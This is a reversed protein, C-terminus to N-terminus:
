FIERFSATLLADEINQFQQSIGFVFVSGEKFIFSVNLIDIGRDGMEVQTKLILERIEWNDDIKNKDAPYFHHGNRTILLNFKQGADDSKLSERDKFIGGHIKWGINKFVFILFYDNIVGRNINLLGGNVLRARRRHLVAMLSADLECYCFVNDKYDLNSDVDYPTNLFFIRDFAAVPTGSFYVEEKGQSNIENILIQEPRTIDCVSHGSSLLSSRIEKGASENNRILLIKM